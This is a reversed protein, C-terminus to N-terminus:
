KYIRLKGTMDQWADIISVNKDNPDRKYAVIYFETDSPQEECNARSDYRKIYRDCAQDPLDINNYYWGAYSVPPQSINEQKFGYFFDQGDKTIYIHRFQPTINYYTYNYRWNNFDYVYDYTYDKLKEYSDEVYDIETQTVAPMPSVGPAYIISQTDPNYYVSDGCPNYGTSTKGDCKTKSHNLAQLPSFDSSINTNIATGFAVKTGYKIVCINNVCNETRRNGPQKCYGGLFTTVTGYDTNYKYENLVNQYKDCYLAFSNTGAIALLQQAILKTRSSWKGNECYNDSLYQKDQICKPKDANAIGAWYKDPQNDLSENYLARVLCQTTQSCFGKSTLDWNYKLEVSEWHAAMVAPMIILFLLILKARM